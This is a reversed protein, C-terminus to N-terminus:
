ELIFKRVISEFYAVIRNAKTNKFVLQYFYSFVCSIFICLFAFGITGAVRDINLETIKQWIQPKFLERFIINEHLLYILLSCGAIINVTKNYFHYRSVLITLSVSFTIIFPNMMHCDKLMNVALQPHNSGIQQKIFILSILAFFSLMCSWLLKQNSISSSIRKIYAVFFYICIFDVVLNTFFLGIYFLKVFSYMFLMLMCITGLQKNSARNIILNISPTLFMLLIYVTVFGNNAFTVPFLSRLVLGKSVGGIVLGVILWLLSIFWTDILISIIKNWKITTQNESLFYSSSCWFIANGVQGLYYFIYM